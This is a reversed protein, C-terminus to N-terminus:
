LRTNQPCDQKAFVLPLEMGNGLNLAGLWTGTYGDDNGEADKVLFLLLSVSIIVAFTLLRKLMMVSVM